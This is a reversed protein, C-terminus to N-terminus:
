AESGITTTVRAIPGCRYSAGAGRDTARAGGDRAGAARDPEPPATQAQETVGAPLMVLSGPEPPTAAPPQFAVPQEVPQEFAQPAAPVSRNNSPGSSSRM